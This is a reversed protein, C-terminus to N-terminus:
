IKYEPYFPNHAKEEGVTTLPGHGPCIITDDPLSFIEKRNTTLADIYSVAGGGMSSAFLADGVVALPRALGHIVYTTGGKSHGWTSRSEIKLSGLEWAVGPSFTQADEHPERESVLIEPASLTDIDAVHDPHTHTLFLYRLKLNMERIKDVMPQADTGTDFAAAERTAPDWILYANVTMDHYPTNFQALGALNVPEPYWGNEAMIELSPGHLGLIPALRHLTQIDPAGAKVAEVAAESVRAMDALAQNSLGLGRQAKGVVDGFLDELPINM